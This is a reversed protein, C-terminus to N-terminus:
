KIIKSGKIDMTYLLMGLYGGRNLRKWYHYNFTNYDSFSGSCNSPQFCYDSLTGDENLHVTLSETDLYHIILEDSAEGKSITGVYITTDNVITTAPVTESHTIVKFNWNGIYKDLEPSDKTCGSLIVLIAFTIILKSYQISKM